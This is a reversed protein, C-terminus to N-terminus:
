SYNPCGRTMSHDQQGSNPTHIRQLPFRREMFSVMFPARIHHHVLSWAICPSGAQTHSVIYQRWSRSVLPRPQVTSADCLLTTRAKGFQVDALRLGTVPSRYKQIDPDSAQDVAMSTYDIGLHVAGVATCSLCDAM